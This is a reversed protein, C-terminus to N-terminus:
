VHARKAKRAEQMHQERIIVPADRRVDARRKHVKGKPLRVASRTPLVALSDFNHAHM